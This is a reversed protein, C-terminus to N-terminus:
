LGVTVVQEDRTSGVVATPEGVLVVTGTYNGGVFRFDNLHIRFETANADLVEPDFALCSQPVTRTELGIRRFPGGAELRRPYPQAPVVVVESPLPASPRRGAAESSGSDRISRPGALLAQFLAVNGKVWLDVLGQVLAIRGDMGLGEASDSQEAAEMWLCSAQGMLQQTVQQVAAGRQQLPTNPNTM